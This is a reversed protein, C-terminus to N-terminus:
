SEDVSNDTYPISSYPNTVGLERLISIEMGEMIKAEDDKNHDFQCLHLVGHILIHALHDALSKSMEESERLMTEYAIVIDGLVLPRGGIKYSEEEYDPIPDSPFSLVNTPSNIGRHEKNLLCLEKDDSLVVCVECAGYIRNTAKVATTVTKTVLQSLQDIAQIWQEAPALVDVRIRDAM